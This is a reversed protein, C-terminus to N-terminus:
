LWVENEHTMDGSCLNLPPMAKIKHLFRHKKLHRRRGKEPDSFSRHTDRVFGRFFTVVVPTPRNDGLANLRSRGQTHIERPFRHIGTQAIGYGGRGGKKSLMDDVFVWDKKWSRYETHPCVPVERGPVRVRAMLRRCATSPLSVAM